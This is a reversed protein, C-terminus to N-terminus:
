LVLGLRHYLDAPHRYEPVDHLLVCVVSMGVEDDAGAVSLFVDLFPEGVIEEVVGIHREVVAAVAVLHGDVAAVALWPADGDDVGAVVGHGSPADLAYLFIHAVLGEEHGVAVPDAVHVYVPYELEVPRVALDGSQRCDLDGLIFTHQVYAAVVGDLREALLVETVPCRDVGAVHHKLRPYEVIDVAIAANELFLRQLTKDALALQHRVNVFAEPLAHVVDALLCHELLKEGGAGGGPLFPLPLHGFPESWCGYVLFLCCILM